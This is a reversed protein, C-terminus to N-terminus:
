SLPLPSAHPLVSLTPSWHHPLGFLLLVVSPPGTSRSSMRQATTSATANTSTWVCPSSDRTATSDFRAPAVTRSDRKHGHLLSMAQNLSPRPLYSQKLRTRATSAYNGIRRAMQSYCHSTDGVLAATMSPPPTVPSLWQSLFHHSKSSTSWFTSTAPSASTLARTWYHPLRKEFVSM